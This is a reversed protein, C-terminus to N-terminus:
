NYDRVRVKSTLTIRIFYGGERAPLCRTTVRYKHQWAWAHAADQIRQCDEYPMPFTEVFDGVDVLNESFRYKNSPFKKTIQTPRLWFKKSEM